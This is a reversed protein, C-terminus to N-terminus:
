NKIKRAWAVPIALEAPGSTGGPAGGGPVGVDPMEEAPLFRALARAAALVLVFANDPFTSHPAVWLKWRWNIRASLTQGDPDRVGIPVEHQATPWSMWFTTVKVHAERRQFDHLAVTASLKETLTALLALAESALEMDDIVPPYDVNM